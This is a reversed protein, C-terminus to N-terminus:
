LKALLVIWKCACNTPLCGKSTSCHLNALESPCYKAELHDALQSHGVRPTRLVAVIDGWTTTHHSVMKSLVAKLRNEPDSYNTRINDLVYKEVGLEKGITRWKKQVVRLEQMVASVASVSLLDSPLYTM